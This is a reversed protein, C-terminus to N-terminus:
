AADGLLRHGIGNGPLYNLGNRALSLDRSFTYGVYTSCEM